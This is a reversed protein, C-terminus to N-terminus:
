ASVCAQLNLRPLEIVLDCAGITQPRHAIVVRTIRLSRVADNVAKELELDLHSTAEDLVLIQPNRYL